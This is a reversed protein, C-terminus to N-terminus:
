FDALKVIVAEPSVSRQYLRLFAQAESFTDFPGYLLKHVEQGNLQGSRVMLEPQFRQQMRSLTREVNTYDAFAGIQVGYEQKPTIDWDLASSPPTPTTHPIAEVRKSTKKDAVFEYDLSEGEQMDTIFLAPSM